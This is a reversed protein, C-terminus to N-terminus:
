RLAAVELLLGQLVCQAGEKHGRLGNVRGCAVCIVLKPEVGEELVVEVLDFFSGHCLHAGGRSNGGM